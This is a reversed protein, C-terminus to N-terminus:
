RLGVGIEGGPIHVKDMDAALVRVSEDYDNEHHGRGSPTSASPPLSKRRVEKPITHGSTSIRGEQDNGEGEEECGVLSGLESLDEGVDVIDDDPKTRVTTAAAPCENALLRIIADGGPLRVEAAELTEAIDLLLVDMPCIYAVQKRESWALVHGALRGNRRDIVWAGSDGPIGLPLSKTSPSSGSRSGQGQHPSELPVWTRSSSSPKSPSVKGSVQYTHSPSARGYIKVSTLAPLIQGTQLGSTRASCQVAMGPLSTAPAVATPHLNGIPSSSRPTGQARARPVLNDGPKRDDQFEFLAWDIEHM